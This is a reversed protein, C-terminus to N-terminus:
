LTTEIWSPNSGNSSLTGSVTMRAKTGPTVTINKGVVTVTTAAQEEPQVYTITVAPDSAIWMIDNNNGALATTVTYGGGNIIPISITANGTVQLTKIIAQVPTNLNYTTNQSVNSIIIM